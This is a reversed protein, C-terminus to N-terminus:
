LNLWNSSVLEAIEVQNQGTASKGFRIKIILQLPQFEPKVVISELLGPIRISHCHIGVRNADILVTLSRGLDSDREAYAWCSPSGESHSLKLCLFRKADSYDFNYYDDFEAVVRFETPEKSKEALFRDWKNEDYLVFSEWDLKLGAPTEEFVALRMRQDDFLGRLWLFNTADIKQEGWNSAITHIGKPTYGGRSAYDRMRPLSDSPHRVFQSQENPTNAALFLRLIRHAEAIRDVTKSGATPRIATTLSKSESGTSIQLYLFAAAISALGAFVIIGAPIPLRRRSHESSEWPASSQLHFQRLKKDNEDAERKITLNEQHSYDVAEFGRKFTLSCLSAILKKTPQLNNQVPSNHGNFESRPRRLVIAPRSGQGLVPARVYAGCDHIFRTRGTRKRLTVHRQCFPCPFVIRGLM